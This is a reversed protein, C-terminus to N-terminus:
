TSRSGAEDHYRSCIRWASVNPMRQVPMPKAASSHGSSKDSNIPLRVSVSITYESAM